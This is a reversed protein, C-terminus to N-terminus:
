SRRGPGTSKKGQVWDSIRSYVLDLVFSRVEHFDAADCSQIGFEVAATTFLDNVFRIGSFRSIYRNPKKHFHTSHARAVFRARHTAKSDLRLVVFVCDRIWHPTHEVVVRPHLHVGEIVIAEGGRRCREIIPLIHRWVLLCQRLYVEEREKQSSSGGVRYTPARLDQENPYLTKLVERISDSAIVQRIGLRYAIESALTSKGTNTAGGILVILPKANSDRGLSAIYRALLRKRELQMSNLGGFEPICQLTCGCALAVRQMSETVFFYEFM